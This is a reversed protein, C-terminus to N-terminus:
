RATGGEFAAIAARAQVCADSCCPMLPHGLSMGCFCSASSGRLATLAALLESGCTHREIVGAMWEESHWRELGDNIEEAASLARASPTAPATFEKVIIAEIREIMESPTLPDQPALARSEFLSHIDEAARRPGSPPIPQSM